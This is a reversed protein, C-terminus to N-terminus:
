QEENDGETLNDIERTVRTKYVLEELSKLLQTSQKIIETRKELLQLDLEKQKTELYKMRLRLLLIGVVIGALFILGGILIPILFGDHEM